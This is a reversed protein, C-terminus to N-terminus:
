KCRYIHYAGISDLLELREDEIVSSSFIYSVDLKKLDNYTLYVRFCDQEILEFRQNKKNDVSKKDGYKAAYEADSILKIEIHAYRNYIDEASPDIMSWREIDPYVNTSNITKIGKLLLANTIPYKEGEVIWLADRDEKSIEYARELEPLQEVARVGARVPNVLSGTLFVMFFIICPLVKTLVSKRSLAKNERESDVTVYLLFCSALVFIVIFSGLLLKVSFYGPNISRNILLATASLVAAAVFSIIYEKYADSKKIDSNESYLHVTRFLLLLSILSFIVLARNATSYSLMSLKAISMPM